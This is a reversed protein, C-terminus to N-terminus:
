NVLHHGRQTLADFRKFTFHLFPLDNVDSGKVGAIELPEDDDSNYEIEDFNHTDDINKVEPDISPTMERINDWDFGDFFPHQKIEEVGDNGIRREAVTLFRCILDKAHPKLPVEPPFRLSTKFTMIMKYTDRPDDACFPPYGILMEYLICGVSWWDCSKTYGTNTFVEPAIYDPTGVLSYARFRRDKKWTAARSVSDFMNESIHIKNVDPAEQKALQSFYKAKDKKKMGTSLGFDALKLHGDSSFLLNDPKIDRHIFGMQHISDIACITEAIYFRACEDSFIDYKILQTMMDGGALFEMIFYLYKSDQFSYFLQVIWPNNAEALIEREARVHDVQERELMESKVMRKMAYIHGTDDKQVLKVTGFAGKGIVKLCTFDSPKLRLRKLRLFESEKLLLEERM